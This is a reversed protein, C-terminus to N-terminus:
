KEICVWYNCFNEDIPQEDIWKIKGSTRKVIDNITNINFANNYMGGYPLTAEVLNPTGSFVDEMGDKFYVPDGFFEFLINGNDKM